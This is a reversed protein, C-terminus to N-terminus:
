RRPAALQADARDKTWLAIQDTISALSLWMEAIYAAKIALGPADAMKKRVGAAQRCGNALSVPHAETSVKLLLVAHQRCEDAVPM